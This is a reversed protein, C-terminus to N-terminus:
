RCDTASQSQLYDKVPAPALASTPMRHWGTAADTRCCLTMKATANPQAPRIM